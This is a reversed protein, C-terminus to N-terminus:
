LGISTHWIYHYIVQKVAHISITTTKIANRSPCFAPDLNENDFNYLKQENLTYYTKHDTPFFLFSTGPVGTSSLECMMLVRQKICRHLNSNHTIKQSSTPPEITQWHKQNNNETTTRNTSCSKRSQVQYAMASLINQSVSM